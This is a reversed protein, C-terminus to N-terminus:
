HSDTCVHNEEPRDQLSYKALKQSKCSPKSNKPHPFVEEWQEDVLKKTKELGSKM